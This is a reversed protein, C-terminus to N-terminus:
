RYFRFIFSKGTVLTFDFARKKLRLVLEEKQKKQQENLPFDFVLKEM